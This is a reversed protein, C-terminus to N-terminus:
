ASATHGAAEAKKARSRSRKKKRDDGQEEGYYGYGYRGYAYADPGKTPVMTMVIGGVRSGVQEIAAVASKLQNKHTRGSAVIV